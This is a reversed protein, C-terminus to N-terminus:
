FGGMLLNLTPFLRDPLLFFIGALVMLCASVSLLYFRTLDKGFGEHILLVNKFDLYPSFIMYLILFKSPLIWIFNKSIFANANACVGMFILALMLFVAISFPYQVLVQSGFQKMLTDVFLSLFVGLIVKEGLIYFENFSHSLWLNFRSSKGQPLPLISAECYLELLSKAFNKNSFSFYLSSVLYLVLALSLGFVIRYTLISSQEPFAFYTSALVLPNLVSSGAFLFLGMEFNLGKKVLRTWIPILGCDCIPLLLALLLTLPLSFWSDQNLVKFHREKVFLQLFSSLAASILIFPLIQLCLSIFTTSFSQVLPLVNKSFPLHLYGFLLFFGWLGCMGLILKYFKSTKPQALYALLTQEELRYINKHRVFNKVTRLAQVTDEDKETSSVVFVQSAHYFIDQMYISAEKLFTQMTLVNTIAILDQVEFCSHNKLLDLLAEISWTGNYEIWLVEDKNPTIKAALNKLALELAGLDQLAVFNELRELLSMSYPTKGQECSFLHQKLSPYQAYMHKSFNELAYTKGSGLFGTFIYVKM